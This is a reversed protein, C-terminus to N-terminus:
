CLAESVQNCLKKMGLIGSSYMEMVIASDLGILLKLRSETAYYLIITMTKFSKREELVKEIVREEEGWWQGGAAREQRSKYELNMSIKRENIWEVSPRESNLIYCQTNRSLPVSLIYIYISVWFITFIELILYGAISCIAINM